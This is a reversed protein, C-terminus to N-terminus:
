LPLDIHFAAGEDPKAEAYIMGGHNEVIKNCIALGIGTGEYDGKSHLRQFVEFIKDAYEPEFGIGNDSVTIHLYNKEPDAKERRIDKGSVLGSAIRIVPPVDPRAFKLANSILNIFLQRLQFPIANISPMDDICLRAGKAELTETFESSVEGLLMNLDTTEFIKEANNARSYALLDNILAKMRSAALQMREFNRRGTESLTEYDSNRIISGFTQIKRLPEQLDHSSIYAFSSLEKNMSELEANAKRLEQTREQVLNELRLQFDKQDQIDTSTGVWQTIQGTDNFLPIARSLQWRYAGDYRRFRHEFHFDEGTQVSHLWRRANEDRDDPHVIELWGKAAVEEPSKGSYQYVSDSFYDLTGFADGTWILQPITESLLRFKEESERLAKEAKKRETIDIMVKSAGIVNGDEDYLARPHVIVHRREGNEREMYIEEELSRGSKFALAMPCSDHPIPIGDLSFIKHAGCWRDAGRNPHRGWLTAAAANYIDIYGKDDITYMAVPLTEILHVYRAKVSEQLKRAQVKETVDNVTCIIGGVSGDPDMLPAYEYDLYFVKRGDHSDVYAVAEYDRRPIGTRMVERLLEIYGQGTLEPFVDLLKKGMVEDEPRRWLTELMTANALDIVFDDGKFIGIAIPSQTVINRFEKEKEILAKRTEVMGTVENCVVIIGTIDNNEDRLPQYVFNFFTLERRNRRILQVGLEYGVYLKGTHLVDLLLAGIPQDKLEPLSEFLPKGIFDIDRDVLELYLPNAQEVTMNEGRLVCIGIPAQSFFAQLDRQTRSRTRELEDAQERYRANLDEIRGEIADFEADTHHREGDENWKLTILDLLTILHRIGLERWEPPMGDPRRVKLFTDHYDLIEAFNESGAMKGFPNASTPLPLAADEALAAQLAIRAEAIRRQM